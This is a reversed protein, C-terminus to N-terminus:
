MLVVLCRLVLLARVIFASLADAAAMMRQKTNPIMMESEALVETQLRLASCASSVCIHACRVQKKIDYEDQQEDRM